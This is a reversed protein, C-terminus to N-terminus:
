RGFAAKLAPVLDTKEWTFTDLDPDPVRGFHGFASASAPAALYADRALRLVERLQGFNISGVGGSGGAVFGGITATRRTSPFM